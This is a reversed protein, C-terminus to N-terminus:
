GKKCLARYQKVTAAFDAVADEVVEPRTLDIGAVKLSDIPSKSNGCRLFALYKQVYSEGETEIRKVIASAASLCTAYKYVYFNYYFHPIRMWEMAIPKDCVVRPGFYRKIIAYYKDCLVEKTLPVGDACLTHMTEEFEAFMTQRFLTTRYLEMLQDLIEAKRADDTASALQRRMLLLENVISAVEAVFITYAADQPPNSGSSYWTHMSHGAEHALTSVDDFTDTFNLLMYPEIDCGGTSYAGDRKGANPYVDVWRRNRIGDELVSRYEEGFVSVTDLVMEVAQEYSCSRTEAAVMPAYVDYLHLQSVGLSERKVDYYDYLVDLHKNVTAILNHMIDPTVEDNFTSAQLSSEFGRVKAVTVREKIFGQLLASLTNGFQEYTEYMKFFAARRVRRNGSMLQTVFNAGTLQLPKGDEGRIKGFRMDAATFVGRIDDHSSLAGSMDALLKEGEDSLTYPRFRRVGHLYRSYAKISPQQEMWAALTDEELRILAPNVFATASTWDDLLNQVRGRLGLAANDSLDVDSALQAYEYLRHITLEIAMQTELTEALSAADKTITQERSAFAAIDAKAQEFAADFAAVDPYLAAPDWKYQEPIDKRVTTM